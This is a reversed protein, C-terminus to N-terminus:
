PSGLCASILQRMYDFSAQDSNKFVAHNLYPELASRMLSAFSIYIDAKSTSQAQIDFASFGCESSTKYFEIVRETDIKMRAVAGVGYPKDNSNEMLTIEASGLKISFQVEDMPFTQDHAILKKVLLQEQTNLYENNQKQIDAKIFSENAPRSSNEYASKKKHAAM